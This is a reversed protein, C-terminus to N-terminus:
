ELGSHRFIALVCLTLTNINHQATSLTCFHNSAMICKTFDAEFPLTYRLGDKSLALEDTEPDYTASINASPSVIPLSHVKYLELASAADLLPLKIVHVFTKDYMLMIFLYNERLTFKCLCFTYCWAPNLGADRQTQSLAKVKLGGASSSGRKM